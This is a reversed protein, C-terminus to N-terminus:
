GFGDFYIRISEANKEKFMQKFEDRAEDTIIMDMGGNDYYQKIKYWISEIKGILVNDSFTENFLCVFSVM